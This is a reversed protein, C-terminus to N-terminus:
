LPELALLHLSAPQTLLEEMETFSQSAVPDLASFPSPCLSLEPSVFVTGSHCQPLYLSPASPYGMSEHATSTVLISSTSPGGSTKQSVYWNM